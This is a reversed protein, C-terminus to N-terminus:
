FQVPAPALPIAQFAVTWINGYDRRLAVHWVSAGRHATPREGLRASLFGLLDPSHPTATTLRKDNQALRRVGGVGYSSNVHGASSGPTVHCVQDHGRWPTM